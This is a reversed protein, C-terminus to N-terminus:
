CPFPKMPDDRERNFGQILPTSGRGSIHPGPHGSVRFPLLVMVGDTGCDSASAVGGAPDGAAAEASGSLAECMDAEGCANRSGPTTMRGIIFPVPSALIARRQVAATIGSARFPNRRRFPQLCIGM